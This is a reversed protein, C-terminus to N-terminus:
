SANISDLYNHLLIMHQTFDGLETENLIFLTSKGVQYKKLFVATEQAHIRGTKFLLRYLAYARAQFFIRALKDPKGEFGLLYRQANFHPFGIAEILHPKIVEEASFIDQLVDGSVEYSELTAIRKVNEDTDDLGTRQTIILTKMEESIM